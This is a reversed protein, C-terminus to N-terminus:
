KCRVYGAQIYEKHIEKIREPHELNAYESIAGNYKAAYYTGIAGDMLVKHEKIYEKM